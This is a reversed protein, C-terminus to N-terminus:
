ASQVALILGGIIAAAIAFYGTKYVLPLRLGKATDWYLHRTGTVTKFVFAMAILAKFTLLVHPHIATQISDVFKDFNGAYYFSGLGFLIAVKFMNKIFSVNIFLFFIVNVDLYLQEQLETHLLCSQQCQCDSGIKFIFTYSSSIIIKL